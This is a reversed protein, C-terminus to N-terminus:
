SGSTGALGSSCLAQQGLHKSSGLFRTPPALNACSTDLPQAPRNIFDAAFKPAARVSAGTRSERGASTTGSVPFSSGGRKPLSRHRWTGARPRGRSLDFEGVLMLTPVATDILVLPPPGIESWDNCLGYLQLRDLVSAGSPLPDRYHPRDPCEVAIYTSRNVEAAM